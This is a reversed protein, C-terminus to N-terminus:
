RVEQYGYWLYVAKDKNADIVGFIDMADENDKNQKMLLVVTKGDIIRDVLKLTDGPQITTLRVREEPSYKSYDINKNNFLTSFSYAPDLDDSYYYGKTYEVGQNPEFIQSMPYENVTFTEGEKVVQEDIVHQGSQQSFGLYQITYEDHHKYKKEIDKEDEDIHNKYEWNLKVGFNDDEIEWINNKNSAIEEVAETSQASALAEVGKETSQDIVDVQQYVVASKDNLVGVTHRNLEM